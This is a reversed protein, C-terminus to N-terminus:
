NMQPVMASPTVAESKSKSKRMQVVTTEDVGTSINPFVANVQDEDDFKELKDSVMSVVSEQKLMPPAHIYSQTSDGREYSAGAVAGAAVLKAGETNFHDFSEGKESSIAEELAAKASKEKALRAKKKKMNSRFICFGCLSCCLLVGGVVLCIKLTSMGNSKTITSITTYESDICVNGLCRLSVLGWNSRCDMDTYCVKNSGRERNCFGQDFTNYLIPKVSPFMFGQSKKFCKSTGECDSDSSCSEAVLVVPGPGNASCVPTGVQKGDSDYAHVCFSKWPQALGSQEYGSIDIVCSLETGPAECLVDVERVADAYVENSIKNDNYYTLMIDVSNLPVYKAVAVFKHVNLDPVAKWVVEISSQGVKIDFGSPSAVRVTSSEPLLNSRTIKGHKKGDTLPGRLHIWKVSVISGTDSIEISKVQNAEPVRWEAFKTEGDCIATTNLEKISGGDTVFRLGTTVVEKLEEKYCIAEIISVLHQDTPLAWMFENENWIREYDMIGDPLSDGSFSIGGDNAGAIWRVRSDYSALIYEIGEYSPADVAFGPDNLDDPITATSSTTTTTLSSEVTVVGFSDDALEEKSSDLIPSLRATSSTTTTTLSSEVPVVFSDALGERRLSNLITNLRGSGDDVPNNELNTEGNLVATSISAYFALGFISIGM